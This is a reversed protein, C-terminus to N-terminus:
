RLLSRSADSLNSPRQFSSHGKRGTLAETFAEKTLIMGTSSVRTVGLLEYLRVLKPKGDKTKERRFDKRSNRVPTSNESAVGMVAVVGSDFLTQAFSMFFRKFNIWSGQWQPFVHILLVNAGFKGEKTQLLFDAYAHHKSSRLRYTTQKSVTFFDDKRSLAETRFFQLDTGRNKISRLVANEFPTSGQTLPPEFFYHTVVTPPPRFTLLGVIRSPCLIDHTM